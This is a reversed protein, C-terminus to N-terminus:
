GNGCDGVIAIVGLNALVIVISHRTGDYSLPFLCLQGSRVRRIM